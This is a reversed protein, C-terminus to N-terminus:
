SRRKELTLTTKPIKIQTQNPGEHKGPMGVNVSVTKYYNKRNAFKELYLLHCLHSSFYDHSPPTFVLPKHSTALNLVPPKHRFLFPKSFVLPKLERAHCHESNCVDLVYINSRTTVVVHRHQRHFM